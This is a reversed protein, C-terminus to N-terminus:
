KICTYFNDKTVNKCTGGVLGSISSHVFNSICASSNNIKCQLNFDSYNKAYGKRIQKILQPTLVFEYLPEKKYVSDGDVSRNLRIKTKVTTQNNWNTGPYRGKYNDNFMGKKLGSQSITKDADYSPFPNDLDIVRYIINIGKLPCVLKECTQVATNYSVGQAVKTEVCALLKGDMDEDNVNNTNPCHPIDSNNCIKKKCNSASEGAMVCTKISVNEMPPDCYYDDDSNDCLEEEKVPETSDCLNAYQAHLVLGARATTDACTVCANDPPPCVYNKPETTEDITKDCYQQQLDLCRNELSTKTNKDACYDLIKGENKTGEPCICSTDSNKLIKYYCKYESNAINVFANDHGLKNTKIILNYKKNEKADSSIALNGYGIDTFNNSPKTSSVKGDKISVYRNYNSDLTYSTTATVVIKNNSVTKKYSTNNKNLKATATATGNEYEVTVDTQFNYLQSADVNQCASINSGEITCTRRGFFSLSYKNFEIENKNAGTPWVLYGNSVNHAYNGPYVQQVYELCYINCGNGQYTLKGNATANEVVDSSNCSVQETYEAFTGINSKGTNNCKAPASATKVAYCKKPSVGKFFDIINYGAGYKSNALISRNFTTTSRIGIDDWSTNLHFYEQNSFHESEWSTKLGSAALDKPTIYYYSGGNNQTWSLIPQTIIRYGKCNIGCTPDSKETDRDLVNEDSIGMYNLYLKYDNVVVNLLYDSLRNWDNSGYNFSPIYHGEAIYKTGTIYASNNSVIISHSGHPNEELSSGNYYVLTMLVTVHHNNNYPCLGKIGRCGNHSAGSVGSSTGNNTNVGLAYVSGSVIILLLSVIGLFRKTVKM